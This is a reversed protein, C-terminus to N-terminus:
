YKRVVREESGAGVKINLDGMIIAGGYKKIQRM